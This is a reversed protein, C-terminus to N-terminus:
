TEELGCRLRDALKETDPLHHYDSIEPDDADIQRLNVEPRAGAM